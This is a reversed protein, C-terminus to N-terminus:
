RDASRAGRLAHHSTMARGTAAYPNLAGFAPAAGHAFELGTRGAPTLAGDNLFDRDPYQAQYLDPNSIAWNPLQARNYDRGDCFGRRDSKQSDDDDNETTSNQASFERLRGSRSQQSRKRSTRETQVPRHLSQKGSLEERKRSSANM